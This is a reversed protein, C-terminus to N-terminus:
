IVYWNAGDSVVTRAEDQRLTIAAAGDITGATATLTASGSNINKVTYARGSGATVASPLTITLAAGNALVIDDTAGITYNTTKTAVTHVPSTVASDVYAKTAADTGATPTGLSTLRFGGFDLLQRFKIM